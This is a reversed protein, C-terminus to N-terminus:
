YGRNRPMIECSGKRNLMGCHDITIKLHRAQTLKEKDKSTSPECAFTAAMGQIVSQFLMRDLLVNWPMIVEVRKM